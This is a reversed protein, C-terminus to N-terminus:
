LWPTLFGLDRHGSACSFHLRVNFILFSYFFTAFFSPCFHFLSFYTVIIMHLLDFDHTM